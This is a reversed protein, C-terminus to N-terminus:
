PMEGAIQHTARILAAPACGLSEACSVLDPEHDALFRGVAGLVDTEGARRRLDDPALGTLGLLREARREDACVWALAGLLLVAPDPAPVPSPRAPSM